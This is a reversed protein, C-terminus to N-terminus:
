LAVTLAHIVLGAAAGVVTGNIRIFQLDRGVAVEIRRSAARPDWSGVTRQILVTFQDGYDRVAHVIVRRVVAEVTQRLEEDDSVRRGLNQVLESVRAALPGAGDALTLRLSDTAEVVFRHLPESFREDDLLRRITLDVRAATFRDNELDSAITRLLEDV